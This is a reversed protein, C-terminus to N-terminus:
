SPPHIRAGSFSGRAERAARAASDRAGVFLRRYFPALYAEANSTCRRVIEETGSRWEHTSHLGNPWEARPLQLDREFADHITHNHNFRGGAVLPSSMNPGALAPSLMLCFCHRDPRAPLLYKALPLPGGRDPTPVGDPNGERAQQDPLRRPGGAFPRPVGEALSEERREASHIADVREQPPGVSGRAWPGTSWRILVRTVRCRRVGTARSSATVLEATADARPSQLGLAAHRVGQAGVATPIRGRGDGARARGPRCDGPHAGGEPSCFAYQPVVIQLARAAELGSAQAAFVARGAQVDEPTATRGSLYASPLPPWATNSPHQSPPPPPPAVAPPDVPPPATACGLGVFGLLVFGLLAALAAFAITQKM